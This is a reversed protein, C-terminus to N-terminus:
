TDGERLGALADDDRAEYLPVGAALLITPGGNPYRGTISRARNIVAAPRCEALAQAATTDLDEHDIVAIEGRRLRKVLEKTRADVRVRAAVRGDRPGLTERVPVRRVAPALPSPDPTLSAAIRGRAGPGQGRV